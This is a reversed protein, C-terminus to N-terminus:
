LDRFMGEEMKIPINMKLQQMKIDQELITREIKNVM